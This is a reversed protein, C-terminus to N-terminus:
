GRWWKWLQGWHGTPTCTRMDVNHQRSLLMFGDERTRQRQWHKLLLSDVARQLLLLLSSSSTGDGTVATPLGTLALREPDLVFVEVDLAEGTFTRLLIVESGFRRTSRWVPLFWSPSARLDMLSSQSPGDGGWFPELQGVHVDARSFHHNHILSLQIYSQHIHAVTKLLLM